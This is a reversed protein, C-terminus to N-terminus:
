QYSARRVMEKLDQGACWAKPTTSGLIAVYLSPESEFWDFIDNMTRELVQNMANYQKPRNMAVHLVNELPFSLKVVDDPIAPVPKSFNRTASM